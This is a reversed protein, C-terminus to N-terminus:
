RIKRLILTTTEKDEKVVGFGRATLGTKIHLEVEVYGNSHLEGGVKLVRAIQDLTAPTYCNPCWTEDHIATVSGAPIPLWLDLHNLDCLIDATSEHLSVVMADAHPVKTCAECWTETKLGLAELMDKSNAHGCGLVIKSPYGKHSIYSEVM